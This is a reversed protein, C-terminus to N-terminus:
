KDRRFFLKDGVREFFGPRKRETKKELESERNRTRDDNFITRQGAHEEAPSFGTFKLYGGDCIPCQVVPMHDITGTWNCTGCAYIRVMKLSM